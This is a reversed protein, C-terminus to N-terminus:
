LHERVVSFVHAFSSRNEIEIPLHLKRALDSASIIGRIAHNERDIVLCHQQGSCRLAQIVDRIRAQALEAYSFAKLESRRRMFDTVRLEEPKFGEAQKKILSQNDLDQLSVVGLFHNNADVVIKLRVHARQMLTRAEAATVSDELVLPKQQTFDTLVDTAPTDLSVAHNVEPWALEDVSETDYLEITQM